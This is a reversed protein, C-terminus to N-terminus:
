RCNIRKMETSARKLVSVSSHAYDKQLQKYAICADDKKGMGTLAMGLKLLNSAAKPGKPFQQYGEAFVRASKEYGGRVYFTEGYWYKANSVLPHSPYDAMFKAFETEARPFDRAKIFSYAYDYARPASDSSKSSVGTNPSKNITGLAQSTNGPPTYQFSSPPKQMVDNPVNDVPPKVTIGSTYQPPVYPTASSSVSVSGGRGQEIDKLRMEIDGTQKTLGNRLRRIEYSQQEMQGTLRRIEKELQQFRIEAAAAASSDYSQAQLSASGSVVSVVAIFGFAFAFRFTNKLNYVIM